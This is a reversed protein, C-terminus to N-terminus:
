FSLNIKLVFIAKNQRKISIIQDLLESIDNQNIIYCFYRIPIVCSKLAKEGWHM